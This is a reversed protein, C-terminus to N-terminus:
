DRSHLGEYGPVHCCQGIPEEEPEIETQMKMWQSMIKSVRSLSAAIGSGGGDSIGAISEATNGNNGEIENGNQMANHDVSERESVWAEVKATAM